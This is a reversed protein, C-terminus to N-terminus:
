MTSSNISSIFFLSGFPSFRAFKKLSTKDIELNDLQAKLHSQIDDIKDCEFKQKVRVMKPMTVEEIGQVKFNIEPFGIFKMNRGGLM